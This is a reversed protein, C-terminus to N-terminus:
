GIRPWFANLVGMLDQFVFDPQANAWPLDQERSVGTLVLVGKLGLRKAGLIDTDLRDGLVYTTEATTEAPGMEDLRRLAERFLPPEPKGVVEPPVGTSAELAALISGCGPVLGAPVPLTLDPNAGVFQAGSQILLAATALKEYTLSTDLGVVVFDVGSTRDLPAEGSLVNLDAEELAQLLGEEGIAYVWANPRRRKVLMATAQASTLIREESVLIGMRELRSCVDKPPRTSNNTVLLYPVRDRNLHAFFKRAGPLLQEGRYIVGDLDIIWRM